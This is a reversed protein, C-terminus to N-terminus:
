VRMQEPEARGGEAGAQAEQMTREEVKDRKGQM